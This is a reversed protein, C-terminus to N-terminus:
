EKVKFYFQPLCAFLHFGNYLETVQRCMRTSQFAKLLFVQAQIIQYKLLLDTLCLFTQFCFLIKKIFIWFLIQDPQQSTSLYYFFSCTIIVWAQFVWWRQLNEHFDVVVSTHLYLCTGAIIFSILVPWYSFQALLLSIEAHNCMIIECQFAKVRM